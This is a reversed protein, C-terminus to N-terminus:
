ASVHSRKTIKTHSIRVSKKSMLKKQKFYDSLAQEEETTLSGQGGIYDVDLDIRKTKM